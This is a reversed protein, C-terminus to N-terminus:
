HEFQMYLIVKDQHQSIKIRDSYKSFMYNYITNVDDLDMQDLALVVKHKKVDILRGKYSIGVAIKLENFSIKTDIPSDSSKNLWIMELAENIAFTAKTIVERRAGWVQGQKEMFSM